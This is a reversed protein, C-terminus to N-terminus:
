GGRPPNMSFYMGRDLQDLIYPSFSNWFLILFTPIGISRNLKIVVKGVYKSYPYCKKWDANDGVICIKQDDVYYARHAIISGYDIVGVIDNVDPKEKSLVLLDGPTFACYPDSLYTYDIWYREAKCMSYGQSVGAYLNSTFFNLALVTAAGILGTFFIVIFPFLVLFLPNVEM